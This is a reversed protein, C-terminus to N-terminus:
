PDPRVQANKCWKKNQGSFGPIKEPKLHLAHVNGFIVGWRRSVPIWVEPVSTVKDKAAPHFFPGRLNKDCWFFFVPHLPGSITGSKNGSFCPDLAGSLACTRAPAGM